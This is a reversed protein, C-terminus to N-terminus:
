EAAPTGGAGSRRRRSGIVLVVAALGVLLLAGIQRWPLVAFSGSAREFRTGLDVQANATFFGVLPPGEWDLQFVRTQDPYLLGTFDLNAREDDGEAVSVSGDNDGDFDLVLNGTNRVTATVGVHSDGAIQPVDVLAVEAGPRAAGSVRIAFRVAIGQAPATTVSADLPLRVLVLSTLHTGPEARKPVQVRYQIPQKRSPKGSFQRPTASIWSSASFPSDAPAGYVFSGDPQQVADQVSVAFQRQREGRVEVNITGVAAEDRDRKLEVVTPFVSFEAM